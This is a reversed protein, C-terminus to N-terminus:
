LTLRFIGGILLLLMGPITIKLVNDFVGSQPLETTANSSNNNDPALTAMPSSGGGGGSITVSSSNNQSCVMVDSANIDNKIIKSTACDFSLSTSGNSKAQFTITALTGATSISTTPDDVMGAVYIKGSTSEDHSVTPFLAGATVTNVTLLSADYAVYADTSSLADSGPDITLAVDFTNGNTVSITTKDFKLSAASVSGFVVPFVVMMIVLWLINVVKKKMNMNTMGKFFTM